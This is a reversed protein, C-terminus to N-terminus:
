VASRNKTTLAYFLSIVCFGIWYLYIGLHFREGLLRHSLDSRFDSFTFYLGSLSAFFFLLLIMKRTAGNLSRDVFYLLVVVAIMLAFCVLAAQWWVKFFKYEKYLLNIGIRGAFSVGKTLNGSLLSILALIFILLPYNRKM